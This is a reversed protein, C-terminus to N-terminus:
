NTQANLPTSNMANALRTIYEGSSFEPDECLFAINVPPWQSDTTGDKSFDLTEALVTQRRDIVVRYCHLNPGTIAGMSGWTSVSSLTPMGTISAFPNVFGTGPDDPILGGNTQTAANNLNIDYMRKEAYITQEKNPWGAGTGGMNNSGLPTVMDLGLRRLAEYIGITTSTRIQENNLPRSLIFIYEEIQDFNNQNFGGGLPVPSTRQVTVNTPMLMEGNRVMFDLDVRQYQIFSGTGTVGVPVLNILQDQGVRQTNVTNARPQNAPRNTGVQIEGFDIDILRAGSSLIRVM